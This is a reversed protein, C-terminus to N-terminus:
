GCERMFCAKDEKIIEQAQALCMEVAQAAGLSSDAVMLAVCRSMFIPSREEALSESVQAFELPYKAVWDDFTGCHTLPIGGFPVVVPNEFDIGDVWLMGEQEVMLCQAMIVSSFSDAGNRYTIEFFDIKESDAM